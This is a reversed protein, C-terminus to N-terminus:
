NRERFSEKFKLVRKKPSSDEEEFDFLEEYEDYPNEECSDGVIEVHNM